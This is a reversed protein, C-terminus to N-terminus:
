YDIVPITINRSARVNLNGDTVLLDLSVMAEIKKITKYYDSLIEDM